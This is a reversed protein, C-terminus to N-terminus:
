PIRSVVATISTGLLRNPLPDLRALFQMFKEQFRSGAQFGRQITSQEGTDRLLMFKRLILIPYFTLGWYTAREIRLGSEKLEDTLSRMSYRRVHGARKDYNSFLEQRAPVNIIIHGGTKLHYLVADLFEASHDIHEVVDCLLIVDFKNAFEPARQRIDYCVLASKRAWSNRLAELNLDIGIVNMGYADEIERLVVGNGCGIEAIEASERFLHGALTNLVRFRAKMWFHAPEAYEFWSDAMSVPLPQTLMRIQEPARIPPKM